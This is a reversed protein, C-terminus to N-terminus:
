IGFRFELIMMWVSQQERLTLYLDQYLSYVCLAHNQVFVCLILNLGKKRKSSYDFHQIKKFTHLTTLSFLLSNRTHTLAHFPQYVHTHLVIPYMIEFLLLKLRCRSGEQAQRGFGM